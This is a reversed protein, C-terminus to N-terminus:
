QLQEGIEGRLPRDDIPEKILREAQLRRAPGSPELPQGGLMLRQLRRQAIQQGPLGPDLGLSEEVGQRPHGCGRGGLTVGLRAILDAGIADDIQDTPAPLPGDPERLADIALQLALEGQLQRAEAPRLPEGGAHLALAVDQAAEIVRVDGPEVVRADILPSAREEGDLMDLAHIELTEAVFLAEIDPRTHGQEHLDELRHLVGVRRQDHMTVDLGGVDEDIGPTLRLQEIETHGRQHVVRGGVAVIGRDTRCSARQGRTIGARLLDRAFAQTHTRVDVGQRDDEVFREGPRRRIRDLPGRRRLVLPHDGIALHTRRTSRHEGVADREGTGGCWSAEGPHQLAVEFGHQQPRHREVRTLSVGGCRRQTVIQSAPQGSPGDLGAGRGGPAAQSFEHDAVSPRHAADTQRDRRHHDRAQDGDPLRSLRLFLRATGIGRAVQQHADEAVGIGGQVAPALHGRALQELAVLRAQHVTQLAVGQQLGIHQVRDGGYPVAEAIELPHDVGVLPAHRQQALRTHLGLRQHPGQQFFAIGERHDVVHRPEARQKILDSDQQGGFIHRRIHPLDVFPM